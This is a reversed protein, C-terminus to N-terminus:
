ASIDSATLASADMLFHVIMAPALSRSRVYIVALLMALAFRVAFIVAGQSFGGHFFVFAASSIVMAALTSGTLRKLETIAVGRFLTEECFAATFSMFVWFLRTELEPPPFFMTAGYPFRALFADSPGPLYIAVAVAAALALAAIALTTAPPLLLGISAYDRGAYTTMVWALVVWEFAAASLWFALWLEREGRMFRGLVGIEPALYVLAVPFFVLVITLRPFTWPSIANTM